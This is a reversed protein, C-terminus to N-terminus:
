AAKAREISYRVIRGERTSVIPGVKEARLRSIAGRVTHSAVGGLHKMLESVTRGTGTIAKVLAVMQPQNALPAKNGPHKKGRAQTAVPQFKGDAKHVKFNGKGFAKIGARNANSRNTYLKSM